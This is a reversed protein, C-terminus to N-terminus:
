KRLKFFAYVSYLGAIGVLGYVITQLFTIRVIFEVLNFRFVGVLGWNIGGVVLLLFAIIDYWKMKKYGIKVM